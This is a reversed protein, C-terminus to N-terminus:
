GKEAIEARGDRRHCTDDNHIVEDNTLAFVVIAFAYLVVEAIYQGQDCPDGPPRNAKRHM